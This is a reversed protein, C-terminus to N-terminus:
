MQVRGGDWHRSQTAVGEGGRKERKETELWGVGHEECISFFLTLPLIAASFVYFVLLSLIIPQPKTSSCGHCPWLAVASM